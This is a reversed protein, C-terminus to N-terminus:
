GGSPQNAPQNTSKRSLTIERRQSREAGERREVECEVLLRFCGGCLKETLTAVVVCVVVCVFPRYMCMM